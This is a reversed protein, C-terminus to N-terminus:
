QFAKLKQDPDNLGLALAKNIFAATEEKNKHKHAYLAKYYYVDPNEPEITQYVDLVRKTEPRNLDVLRKSYSYGWIGLSARIRQLTYRTEGNAQDIREDLKQLENAWWSTDMKLIANAYMDSLKQDLDELEKQRALEVKFAPNQILQQLRLKLPDTDLTKELTQLNYKIRQAADIYEGQLEMTSVARNLYQQYALKLPSTENTKELHKLELFAVGNYLSEADPWEHKKHHYSLMYYTEMNKPPHYSVMEKYNFDSKGAIAFYPIPKSFQANGPGASCSIVGKFVGQDALLTALRAGGSFGCGYMRNEDIEFKKKVDVILNQIVQANRDYNNRVDNSGVIMYGFSEAALQLSDVPTKGDASPSFCFIVPIDKKGEASKPAYVFYSEDTQDVNIKEIENFVVNSPLYDFSPATKTCATFLISAFLIFHSTRM